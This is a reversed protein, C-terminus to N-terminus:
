HTFAEAENALHAIYGYSVWGYGGRGWAQGWSGVVKFAGPGDHDTAVKNDFGVIVLAHEGLATLGGPDTALPTGAIDFPLKTGNTWALSQYMPLSVVVVHNHAIAAIINRLALGGNPTASVVAGIQGSSLKYKAAENRAVASPAVTYQGALYPMTSNTANGQSIILSFAESVFIGRDYGNNLQNYTYAPSFQQSPSLNGFWAATNISGKSFAQDHVASYGLWYYGVAWGVCSSEQGQDGVPSMLYSLDVQDPVPTYSTPYVPWTTTFTGTASVLTNLEDATFVKAGFTHHIVRPKADVSVSDLILVMFLLVLLCVRFSNKM